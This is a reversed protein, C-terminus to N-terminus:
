TKRTRTPDPLIRTDQTLAVVQDPALGRVLLSDFIVTPRLSELGHQSPDTVESTGTMAINKPPVWLKWTKGDSVM